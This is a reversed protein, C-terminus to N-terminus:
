KGFLVKRGVVYLFGDIVTVFLRMIIEMKSEGMKKLLLFFEELEKGEDFVFLLFRWCGLIISLFLILKLLKLVKLM